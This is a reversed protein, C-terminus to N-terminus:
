AAPRPPPSDDRSAQEQAKRLATKAATVTGPSLELGSAGSTFAGHARGGYVRASQRAGGGSGGEGGGSGSTQGM